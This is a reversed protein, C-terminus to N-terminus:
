SWKKFYKNSVCYLGFSLKILDNKGLHQVHFIQAWCIPFLSCAKMQIEECLFIYCRFGLDIDKMKKSVHAGVMEYNGIFGGNDSVNNSIPM